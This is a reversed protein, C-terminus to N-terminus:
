STTTLSARHLPLGELGSSSYDDDSSVKRRVHFGIDRDHPM